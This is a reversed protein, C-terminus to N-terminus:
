HTRASSPAAISLPLLKLGRYYRGTHGNIKKIGSPHKRTPPTLHHRSLARAGAQTDGATGERVM